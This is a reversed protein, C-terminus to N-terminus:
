NIITPHKNEHNAQLDRFNGGVFGGNKTDVHVLALRIAVFILLSMVPKKNCGRSYGPIM